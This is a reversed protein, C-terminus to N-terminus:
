PFFFEGRCHPDHIMEHVVFYEECVLVVSTQFKLYLHLFHTVKEIAEILRIQLHVILYM